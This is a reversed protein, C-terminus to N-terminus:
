RTANSDWPAPLQALPNRAPNSADEEAVLVGACTIEFKNNDARTIWKNEKLFWLSFELHERPCGLMNEFDRMNLAPQHPEALRKGYLLSLIGQRKRREAEVGRSNQWTEFIKVRGQTQTGLQADYAARKEPDGLVRHAEVIERFLEPNGTEQNDPHYRQALMRFVRQITDLNANRSLQLTEYHDAVAADSTAEGPASGGSFPEFSLGAIFKGDEGAACRCVLCRRRLPFPGSGADVDGAIDVRLGPALLSPVEVSLGEKSIDLLRVTIEYPGSAGHCKITLNRQGDSSKSRAQRRQEPGPAMNYEDVPKSWYLLATFIGGDLRRRM